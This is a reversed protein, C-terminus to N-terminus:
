SGRPAPAFQEALKFKQVKGSATMPFADVCFIRTPVKVGAVREKLFARLETESPPPAARALIAARVEEGFVPDPVGFVAADRVGPHGRLADEVEAPYVNEGGRIIMEKLRGVIRVYEDVGHVALDGTRLWGDALLVEATAEPKKWYGKMVCDGRVWLEGTEGRAVERKSAPDVVRIETNPLPRGCTTARREITDDPDNITVGPSCETLGYAAVAQPLHLTTVLKRVLEEPCPAGGMVGARLTSLDRPKREQEETLLRFHTPVGYLLNCREREVLDLARAADFRDLLAITVASVFAGLTGVVCGFCHFLPVTLALREGPAFRLKSGIGWANNVLNRHTLMVGKPFGTTGSTYQMNIVDDPALEGEIRVVEKELEPRAKAGLARFEPWARAPPPADNGLFIEHRLEPLAARVQALSRPYSNTESGATYVVACSESQKLLYEIEPPKLATNATVLIAGIRALALEIVIWEPVNEAWVTVRDGRGVGLALFSSAAELTKADLERFSVRWGRAPDVLAEDDPRAAVLRRLVEGITCDRPRTWTTAM